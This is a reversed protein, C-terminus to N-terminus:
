AYGIIADRNPWKLVKPRQTQGRLVYGSQQPLTQTINRDAAFLLGEPVLRTVLISVVRAYQQAPGV